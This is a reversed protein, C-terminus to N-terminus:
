QVKTKSLEGVYKESINMKKLEGLKREKIFELKKKDEEMKQRMRRGEELYDMRDQKKTDTNSGIQNRNNISFSKSSNLQTAISNIRREKM